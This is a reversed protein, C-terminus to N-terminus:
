RSSEDDAEVISIRVEYKKGGDYFYCGPKGEFTRARLLNILSRAEYQKDLFIQSAPDLERQLRSSGRDSPQPQPEYHGSVVDLYSEVFLDVLARKAKVYLTGGTDSWTKEIPRQILIDGTDIGEDVLHMTVGFPSDEVLTWFNYNKGRNYPLFSPHLNITAKGAASFVRRPVIKPWWALFIYEIGQLAEAPNRATLQEFRCTPVGSARAFASIANDETTVVLGLHTPHNAVIFQVVELGVDQDGFVATIGKVASHM